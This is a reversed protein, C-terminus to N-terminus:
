AGTYFPHSRYDPESTQGDRWAVCWDFAKDYRETDDVGLGTARAMAATMLVIIPHHSVWGDGAKVYQVEYMNLLNSMEKTTVLAEGVNRVNTLSLALDVIVSISAIAEKQVIDIEVYPTEQQTM